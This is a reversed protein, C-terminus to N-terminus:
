WKITVKGVSERQEIHEHAKAIESAPFTKGVLPKFIGKKYLDIVDDLCRKLLLPKDDAIRLMNVGILSKSPIIFQAPHYFGFALGTKLQYLPNTHNSMEAAGFCVIRGGSGLLKIGDKVYKGGISDFIVDIGKNKIQQKIIDLYNENRYNIPFQVGRNKLMAIKEQSGATAFVVCKKYLAYQTLATGVGGAAAHILVNDGEHLNTIEASCYYATVFQTTLATASAGDLNDPIKVVGIGKAAVYQAYGGFRTFSAVRDGPKFNNISKGASEITGSVDYGLVCPIPPADKYLGKRALTDAFNLGSYEVKIVVEDDAPEPKPVERFEFAKGATGKRILYIAKM